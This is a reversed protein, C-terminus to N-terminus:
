RFHVEFLGISQRNQFADREILVDFVVRYGQVAGGDHGADGEHRSGAGLRVENPRLGDIQGRERLAHARHLLPDGPLIGFELRQGPREFTGAIGLRRSGCPRIRQRRVERRGPGGELELM